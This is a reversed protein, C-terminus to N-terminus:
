AECDHGYAAECACLHQECEHCILPISILRGGRHAATHAPTGDCDNTKDHRTTTTM